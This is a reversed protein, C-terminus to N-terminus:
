MGESTKEHDAGQKCLVLLFSRNGPRVCILAGVLCSELPLSVMTQRSVPYVGTLNARLLTQKRCAIVIRVEM